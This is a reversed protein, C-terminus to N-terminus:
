TKSLLKKPLTSVKQERGLVCDLFVNWWTTMCYVIITIEWFLDTRDSLYLLCSCTYWSLKLFMKFLWHWRGWFKETRYLVLHVDNEGRKIFKQYCCPRVVPPACDACYLSFLVYFFYLFVNWYSAFQESWHGGNSTLLPHSASGGGETSASGGRSHVHYSVPLSMMCRGKGHVSHSVSTESFM